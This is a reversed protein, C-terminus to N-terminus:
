SKSSGSSSRSTTKRSSGSGSDSEPAAAAEKEDGEAAQQDPHTGNSFDTNPVAAPVYGPVAPASADKTEFQPTEGAMTSYVDKAELGEPPSDTVTALM